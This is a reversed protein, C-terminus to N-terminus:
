RVTGGEVNITKVTTISEETCLLEATARGMRLFAGKKNKVM